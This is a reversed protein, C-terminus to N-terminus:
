TATTVTYGPASGSLTSASTVTGMSSARAVTEPKVRRVECLLSFMEKTSASNAQPLSTSWASRCTWAFTAETAWSRGDWADVGTTTWASGDCSGTISTATEPASSGTSSVCGTSDITLGRKSRTSPTAATETRPPE